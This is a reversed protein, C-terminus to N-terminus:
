RNYLTNETCITNEHIQLLELLRVIRKTTNGVARFNGCIGFKPFQTKGYPLEM